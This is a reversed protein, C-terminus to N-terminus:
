LLNVSQIPILNANQYSPKRNNPDAKWFAMSKDNITLQFIYIEGAENQLTLEKVISVKIGKYVKVIEFNVGNVEIRQGQKTRTLADFDAM